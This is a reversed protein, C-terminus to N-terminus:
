DEPVTMAGVNFMLAPLPETPLRVVCDFAIAKLSVPALVIVLVAAERATLPETPEAEMVLVPLIVEAEPSVAVPAMVKCAVPPAELTLVVPTSDVVLKVTLAPVPPMETLEVLAPVRAALEVPTVLTVSVLAPVMVTLALVPPVVMPLENVRVAVAPLMLVVPAM